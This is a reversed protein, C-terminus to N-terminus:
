KKTTKKSKVEKKESKTTKTASIDSKKTELDKVLKELKDIKNYLIKNQSYTIYIISAAGAVVVVFNIIIILWSNLSVDGKKDDKESKKLSKEYEVMVDYRDEKKTEYLKKIAEKIQEDYSSAYGPFVKDGIIIYPVGQAPQGLFNSITNLYNYNEQDYWTEYAVLKFYKGYDDIISNLFTLFNRCYGCGYGRFMYITIQNDTEKYNSFNHEIEEQTLVEDLNMTQYKTAALTNFPLVLLLCLAIIILGKKM